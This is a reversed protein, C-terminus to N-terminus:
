AKAAAAAHRHRFEPYLPFADCLEQVQARTRDAILQSDPEDLVDAMLVGIGRFEGPGM